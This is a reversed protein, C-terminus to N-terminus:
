PINKLNITHILEHAFLINDSILRGKIFGSQCPSIIQPLLGFLRTNLIKTIINNSVNSLSMPRYDTWTVPCHHKPILVIITSTYCKPLSHGDFFDKIAVIVDQQTIPWCSQYFHASFGDPGAISGPYISFVIAKVEDGSPHACLAEFDPLKPIPISPDLPSCTVDNVLYQIFHKVRPLHHVISKPFLDGWNPNVFIRDLRKKLGNRVWTHMSEGEFGVDILGCNSVMQGFEKMDLARNTNSGQREHDHLFCNFDGGTGFSAPRTRTRTIAM